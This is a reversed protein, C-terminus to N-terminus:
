LYVVQAFAFLSQVYHQNSIKSTHTSRSSTITLTKWLVKLSTLPFLSLPRNGPHDRPLPQVKRGKNNQKPFAANHIELIKKNPLASFAEKIKLINSTSSTAQAYSLPSPDKM